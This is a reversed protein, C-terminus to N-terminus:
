IECGKEKSFLSKVDYKKTIGEVFQVSLCFNPVASVAKVKHM